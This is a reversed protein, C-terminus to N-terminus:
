ARRSQRGLMTESYSSGASYTSSNSPDTGDPQITLIVRLLAPKQDDLPTNTSVSQAPCGPERPIPVGCAVRGGDLASHRGSERGGRLVRVALGACAGRRLAASEVWSDLAQSSGNSADFTTRSGDILWDVARPPDSTITDRLNRWVPGVLASAAASELGVDGRITDRNWGDSRDGRRV